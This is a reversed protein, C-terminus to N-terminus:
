GGRRVPQGGKRQKLKGGKEVVRSVIHDVIEGVEADGDRKEKRVVAVDMEIRSVGERLGRPHSKIYSGPHERLEKSIMPALDSEFIGELRFTTKSRHLTGVKGRIEPEVSSLFISKMESPVGPLCFVVSNGVELKAGPATGVDNRLPTSGEPITAMKERAETFVVGGLGRRAYHDKMLALARQDVRVGRGVAMAVGRLTMDDPTPGLGGVVIVFDSSRSLSSRLAMSIEGLDDDVTTIEGITTGLRTIRKGLWTANTNTTRGTLLEKGVTIAEVRVL